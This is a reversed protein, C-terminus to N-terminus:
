FKKISFRMFFGKKLQSDNLRSFSHSFFCIRFYKKGIKKNRFANFAKKKSAPGIFRKNLIQRKYHDFDVEDSLIKSNCYHEYDFSVFETKKLQIAPINVDIINLDFSSGFFADSLNKRKSILSFPLSLLFKSQLEASKSLKRLGPRKQERSLDFMLLNLELESM